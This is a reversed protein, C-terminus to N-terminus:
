SLAQELDELLDELDEIGVSLRIMGRTVGCLVLEEDTYGVHSALVPMMANSEVGGLTAARLFIRFRDMVQCAAEYGGDMELTVIGGFGRMQRRAVVHGPHTELGPYFVRRIRRHSTLYGAVGAANENQARMRLALTKLGRLLLFAAFPDACAGTLIMTGRVPRIRESPGLVVGALLDSHGGLYKTASHIVLDAGLVFPTQNFPTAFTNDVLLLVGNRNAAAAVTSLDLIELAPNTPTEILLIRTKTSILSDLRDVEEAGFFRTTIGLGPLFRHLLKYTGGYISRLSLIEDGACVVSLIAAATAAQGSSFLVAEEAGELSVLKREAESLTPNGYRTYIYHSGEDELYKRIQAVSQFSFASSQYIPSAIAGKAEEWDCGSRVCRTAFGHGAGKGEGV